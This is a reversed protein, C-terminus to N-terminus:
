PATRWDRLKIVPVKGYGEVAILVELDSPKTTKEFVAEYRGRLPPTNPEADAYRASFEARIRHAGPAANLRVARYLGKRQLAIAELTDFKRQTPAGDDVTITLDEILLGQAKVGAYITVRTADPYLFATETSLARQNIDLVEAKLEQVVRDLEQSGPDVPKVAAAQALGPLCAMLACRMWRNSPTSVM